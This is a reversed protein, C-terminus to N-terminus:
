ARSLYRKIDRSIEDASEAKTELQAQTYFEVRRDLLEMLKGEPNSQLLPRHDAKKVRDIILEIRPNIFVTLGHDNMWKMNDHFCPAGGGTSLVVKSDLSSRLADREIERFREEGKQEFIKTIPMKSREEIVHDLDVFTYGLERSLAKGARTKGAGPMGILFIRNPYNM